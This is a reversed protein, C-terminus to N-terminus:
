DNQLKEGNLTAVIVFNSEKREYILMQMQIQDSRFRKGLEIRYRDSIDLILPAEKRNKVRIKAKIPKAESTFITFSESNLDLKMLFGNKNLSLNMRFDANKLRGNSRHFRIRGQYDGEFSKLANKNVVTEGTNDILKVPSAGWWNTRRPFFSPASNEHESKSRTDEVNEVIATPEPTKFIVVKEVEPLQLSREKDTQEVWKKQSLELRMGLHELFILFVKSLLEDSKQLKKAADKENIYADLQSKLRQGEQKLAQLELNQKPGADLILDALGVGIVLGLILVLAYKM